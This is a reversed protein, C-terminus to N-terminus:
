KPNNKKLSFLVLRFLSENFPRENDAMVNGAKTKQTNYRVINVFYIKEIYM